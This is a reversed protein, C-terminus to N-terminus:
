LAILTNFAISGERLAKQFTKGTIDSQNQDNKLIPHTSILRM